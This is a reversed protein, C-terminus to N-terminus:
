QPRPIIVGAGEGDRGMRRGAGLLCAPWTLIGSSLIFKRSIILWTSVVQPFTDFKLYRFVFQKLVQDSGNSLTLPM